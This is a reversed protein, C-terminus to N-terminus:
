LSDESEDEGNVMQNYDARNAFVLDKYDPIRKLHDFMDSLADPHINNNKYLDTCGNEYLTNILKLSKKNLRAVDLETIYVYYVSMIFRLAKWGEQTYFDKYSNINDLYSIHNKLLIIFEVWDTRKQIRDFVTLGGFAKGEIREDMKTFMFELDNFVYGIIPDILEEFLVKERDKSYLLGNFFDIKFGYNFMTFINVLVRKLEDAQRVQAYELENTLKWVLESAHTDTPTRNSLFKLDDSVNFAVCLSALLRGQEVEHSETIKTNKDLHYNFLRSIKLM